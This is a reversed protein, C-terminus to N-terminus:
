TAHYKLRIHQYYIVGGIARHIVKLGCTDGASLNTFVPAINLGIKNGASGLNFLTGEVTEENKNYAEDIGGYQSYFDIQKSTGGSGTIGILVLSHLHEFDSPIAFSFSNTSSADAYLSAYNNYAFGTHINFITEKEGSNNNSTEEMDSILSANYKEFSYNGYGDDVYCYQAFGFSLNSLDRPVDSDNVQYVTYGSEGAIQNICTGVIELTTNNVKIWM